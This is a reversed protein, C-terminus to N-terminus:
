RVGGSDGSGRVLRALGLFPGMPDGYAAFRARAGSKDGGPVWSYIVTGAEARSPAAESAKTFLRFLSFYGPDISIPTPFKNDKTDLDTLQLGVQSAVEKTWDLHLTTM